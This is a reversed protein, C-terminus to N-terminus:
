RRKSRMRFALALALLLGIGGLVLFLTATSAYPHSVVQCNQSSGGFGYSITCDEQVISSFIFGLTLAGASLGALLAIGLVKVWRGQPKSSYEIKSSNASQNQSKDMAPLVASPTMTASATRAQQPRASTAAIYGFQGQPLQIRLWLGRQELAQVSAGASLQAIIKVNDTPHSLVPVKVNAIPSMVVYQGPAFTSEVPGSWNQRYTM